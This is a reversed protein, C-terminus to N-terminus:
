EAGDCTSTGQHLHIRYIICLNLYENRLPIVDAAVYAERSCICWVPTLIRQMHDLLNRGIHDAIDRYCCSDISCVALVDRITLCGDIIIGDDDVGLLLLDLRGEESRKTRPPGAQQLVDLGSLIESSFCSC